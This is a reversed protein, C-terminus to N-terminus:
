HFVKSIPIFQKASDKLSNPITDYRYRKRLNPIMDYRLFYFTCMGVKMDVQIRSVFTSLTPDHCMIPILSSKLTSSIVTSVRIVSVLMKM